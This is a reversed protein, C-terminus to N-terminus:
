SSRRKKNAERRREEGAKAEMKRLLEEANDASIVIHSASDEILGERVGKDFLQILDNYYGDVNLIGVPKHHIGLQSWAIIELLEEMTGYGGPLDIFAYANKAMELKREHMDAVRKVEGISEVLIQVCFNRQQKATKESRCYHLEVESRCYHLENQKEREDSSKLVIYEHSHSALSWIDSKFGYPIHQLEPCISYASYRKREALSEIYSPDLVVAIYLLKNMKEPDGWYKDFKNKMRIGMSYVDIDDSQQWEKLITHIYSIEHAFTNSTVYLSGSVKLTLEYFVQLLSAFLRVNNWYASTPKGDFTKLERKPKGDSEFIMEENENLIVQWETYQLDLKFCPDQEDFRDFAREFKQATNLM